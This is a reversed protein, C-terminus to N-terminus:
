RSGRLARIAMTLIWALLVGGATGLVVALAALAYWEAVAGSAPVLATLGGLLTLVSAALFLWGPWSRLPAPRVWPRAAANAFYGVSGLMGIWAMILVSTNM